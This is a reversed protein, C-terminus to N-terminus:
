GHPAAAAGAGTFQSDALEDLLRSLDSAARKVEQALAQCNEAYIEETTGSISVAALARGDTGMVPAGICRIGIEEEEDDMAWGSERVKGLEEKLRRLSAITNENHRLLGHQQVLSDVDPEPVFAILCKGLSTCHVDIRKGVWTAVKHAGAREAKAILTAEGRELIAM